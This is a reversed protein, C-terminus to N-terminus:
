FKIILPDISFEPKNTSTAVSVTFCSLFFFFYSQQNRSAVIVGIAAEKIAGIAEANVYGTAKENIFETVPFPFFCPFPNKGYIANKKM